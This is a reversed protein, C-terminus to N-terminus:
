VGCWRRRFAALSFPPAFSREHLLLMDTDDIWEASGPIATVDRFCRLGSSSLCKEIQEADALDQHSYAIFIEKHM